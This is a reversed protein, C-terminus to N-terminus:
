RVAFAINPSFFTRSCIKLISLTWNFQHPSQWYNVEESLSVPGTITGQWTFLDDENIPGASTGAPPDKQLDKLEKTIRRLAM